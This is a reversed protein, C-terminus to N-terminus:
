ATPPFLSSYYDDPLSANSNIQFDNLVASITDSASSQFAFPFITKLLSMKEIKISIFISSLNNRSVLIDCFIM